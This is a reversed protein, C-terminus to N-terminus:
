FYVSHKKKGDERVYLKYCIEDKSESLVKLYLRGKKAAKQAREKLDPKSSFRKEFQDAIRILRKAQKKQDISKGKLTTKAALTYQKGGISVKGCDRSQVLLKYFADTMCGIAENTQMFKKQGLDPNHLKKREVRIRHLRKKLNSTSFLDYLRDGKEKNKTEKLVLMEGDQIRQWVTRHEKDKCDIRYRYGKHNWWPKHKQMMCFIAEQDFSDPYSRTVSSNKLASVDGASIIESMTMESCHKALWADLGATISPLINDIDQSFFDFVATHKVQLVGVTGDAAAQYFLPETSTLVDKNFLKEFNYWQIILLVSRISFNIAAFNKNVIDNFEVLTILGEDKLIFAAAEVTPALFLSQALMKSRAVDAFGASAVLINALRTVQQDNTQSTVVRQGEIFQKDANVVAGITGDRAVIFDLDDIAEASTTGASITTTTITTTCDCEPILSGIKIEIEVNKASKAKPNFKITYFVCGDVARDKELKLRKDKMAEKVRKTLTSYKSYDKNLGAIIATMKSDKIFTGVSPCASRGLASVYCTQKSLTVAGLGSGDTVLLKQLATM